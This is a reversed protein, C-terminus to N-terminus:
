ALRYENAGKANEIKVVEKAWYNLLAYQVKSPSFGEPLEDKAAEYIAKATMPTESMVSLVVAHALDYAARNADAKANLRKLENALEDRLAATDVTEGNLYSIMTEITNKKM